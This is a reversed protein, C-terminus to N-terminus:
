SNASVAAKGFGARVVHGFFGGNAGGRRRSGYVFFSYYGNIWYPDGFFSGYPRFSYYWAYYDPPLNDPTMPCANTSDPLEGTLFDQRSDQQYLPRNCSALAATILILQIVRTKKM